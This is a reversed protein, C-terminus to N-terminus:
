DSYHYALWAGAAVSLLMVLALVVMLWIDFTSWRIRVLRKKSSRFRGTRLWSSMNKAKLYAHSEAL